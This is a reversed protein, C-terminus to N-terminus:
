GERMSSTKASSDRLSEKPYLLILVFSSEQVITGDSERFQGFGKLVTLGDPFRPTVAEDLFQKFEEDSVEPKNPRESGFFLESRIFPETAIQREAALEDAEAQPTPLLTPAPLATPLPRAYDVVTTPTAAAAAQGGNAYAYAGVGALVLVLSLFVASLRNVLSSFM